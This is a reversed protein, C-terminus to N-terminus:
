AVDEPYRQWLDLLYRYNGLPVGRFICNSTCYVYGGTGYGGHQLCYRASERIQERTGAQVVSCDVNGMLCVRDGVLAKVQAIDVGAMPDLSHLGDIGTDVLQDLIPAIEGDTHKVAYLGLAHIGEVQRQLFPTVFKAFMAPSLFPGNNFCYDSCMFVIEAGGEALAKIQALSAEVRRDAEALVAEEDDAIRMAFDYMGAGNPIAYTGDVFAPLMYQHGSLERIYGMIRCQDEVALQHFSTICSWHFAEACQVLTAAFERLVEQRWAGSAGELHQPMLWPVGPWEDFLQYVLELHPPPGAVPERRLAAILQERPTM